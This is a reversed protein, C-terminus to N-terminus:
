FTITQILLDSLSKTSIINNASNILSLQFRSIRDTCCDQRNIITIKGIITPPIKAEIVINSNNLSHYINPHPRPDMTGDFLINVDQSGPWSAPATVSLPKIISNNTDYIIIQSINLYENGSLKVTTIKKQEEAEAAKRQAEAAEAAAKKQAEAEAAAKREAVAKRQAEEVEAVVAAEAAKRQAKAVEAAGAGAEVAVETDVTQLNDENKVEKVKNAKKPTKGISKDAELAEDNIKVKKITTETETIKTSRFLFWYVTFAIASLFFFCFFGIGIYLLTNSKEPEKPIDESESM